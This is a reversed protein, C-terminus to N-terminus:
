PVPISLVQGPFIRDGTIRNATRITNATVGYRRAISFLTEGKLVRHTPLGAPPQPVTERQMRPPSAQLERPGVPEPLPSIAAPRLPPPPTSQPAGTYSLRSEFRTNWIDVADTAAAEWSKSWNQFLYNMRQGRSLTGELRVGGMSYSARIGGYVSVDHGLFPWPSTRTLYADESWRARGVFAGLRANPTLYDAAIRQSSSGPGTAAGLIQGDNTYGAPVEASTYFSERPGTRSSRDLFSAETQVRVAGTATVDRLWQFGLTYAQSYGPAQFFAGISTPLHTRAWEGYLELGDAPFAWRGFFSLIQAREPRDAAIATTDTLWWRTLAEAFRGAADGRDAAPGYVSRAVGLSLGPAGAPRFVLAAASLSRHTTSDPENFFGSSTLDGALLRGEITGIGVAIPRATRLFAHPFGPANDSLVLADLLGPGWWENETSIGASVAGFDLWASSQGPLLRTASGSGFRVPLDV